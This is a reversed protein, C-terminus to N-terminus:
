AKRLWNLKSHAHKKTLHHTPSHSLLAKIPLPPMWIDADPLCEHVAGAVDSLHEADQGSAHLLVVLNSSRGHVTLGTKGSIARVM